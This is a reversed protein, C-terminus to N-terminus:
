GTQTSIFNAAEEAIRKATSVAVKAIFEKLMIKGIYEQAEDWLDRSEIFAKDWISDPIMPRLDVTLFTTVKNGTMSLSMSDTKRVISILGDLWEDVDKNDKEVTISIYPFTALVTNSEYDIKIDEM